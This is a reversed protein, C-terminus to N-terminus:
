LGPAPHQTVALIALAAAALPTAVLPDDEKADTFRNIWSGDERQRAMLERSLAAGWAASLNADALAMTAHAVSWAYYYYTADRIVDREPAFDGPNTSSSFHTELWRRAAQVRPDRPSVGCRLLARLGDATASGYSRYRERGFRDIGAVGAKNRAPDSPTFFFGGDDFREDRREAGASFNQCRAVFSEIERYIPDSAPIGAHRLAALGFLTASLNAEHRREDGPRHRPPHPSYGWGGFAPDDPDFGAAGSLRHDLLLRLWAASARTHEADRGDLEIAISALASTYVPFILPDSGPALTGDATLCSMLYRSGSRAASRTGPNSGPVLSLLKVIPPTLTMGDRLAGYTTSRWAGDPSQRAVLFAFARELAAGIRDSAGPGACAQGSSMLELALLAGVVVALARRGNM